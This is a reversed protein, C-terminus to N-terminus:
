KLCLLGTAFSFTILTLDQILLAYHFYMTLLNNTKKEPQGVNRKAQDTAPTRRVTMGARLTPKMMMMTTKPRRMEGENRKRDEQRKADGSGTEKVSTMSERDRWSKSDRLKRRKM